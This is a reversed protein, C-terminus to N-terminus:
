KEEKILELLLNLKEKSIGYNLCKKLITDYEYDTDFGALWDLSVNFTKSINILVDLTPKVDGNEWRTIASKNVGLKQAFEAKTLNNIERLEVLRHKIDSM